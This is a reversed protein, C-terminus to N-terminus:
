AKKRIVLKKNQAKAVADMYAQMENYKAAPIAHNTLNFKATSVVQNKAANYVYNVEYNGYTFKLAQNTPLTEVEFGEPLDITTVCTKQLPQEFYFDYKRKEVVPLTSHWLDFLRPKLFQKNGAAIDYFKEYEATIGIQKVGDKDTEATYQVDNPQKMGLSRILHERQEDAKLYGLSIYDDRYVGSALVKAVAKATGEPSLTIHVESNFQNDASISKPTNVLKGGDETILLANRNETFTGLKGFPQTNSTCELWTTDGKFPVCLIVHDFTNAAFAPNAPEANTGSKIVAYYSPINVAKLLASMYNSLAKCDGYKKEDVFTAPFPKLGGIGLQISVFRMNQQMYEYLFRAKEKDTKLGETMKQIEEVRKPSLTGVDEKLTKIWNGFTQWTSLDGPRGDYVFSNDVFTVDPFVQWDLADEELKEAKINNATWTYTDLGNSTTKTPKIYTNTSAYRFGMAPDVTVSCISNQTSEEASQPSWGGLTLYSNKSTELIIEVTTPYSAITHRISLVRDDTIISMGDTASRDYMDSKSYKKIKQGAANYIVMEFSGVSNFKKDYGVGFAANHDGKENLITVISHFREQVKGVGKVIYEHNEYRTVAHAGDKLSDPISSAVYLEPLIKKDQALVNGAIGFAMVAALIFKPAKM